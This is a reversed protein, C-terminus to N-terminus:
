DFVEPFLIMYLGVNYATLDTLYNPALVVFILQGALYPVMKLPSTRDRLVLDLLQLTDEEPEVVFLDVEVVTLCHFVAVHEPFQM